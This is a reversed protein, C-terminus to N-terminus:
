SAVLFLFLDMPLCASKKLFTSLYIEQQKSKWARVAADERKLGSGAEEWMGIQLYIGGCLSHPSLEVSQEQCM